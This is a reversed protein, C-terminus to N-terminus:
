LWLYSIHLFTNNIACLTAFSVLTLLIGLFIFLMLIEPETKLIIVLQEHTNLLRGPLYITVGSMILSIFLIIIEM